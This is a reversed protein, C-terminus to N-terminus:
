SMSFQAMSLMSTVFMVIMLTIVLVVLMFKFQPHLMVQARLRIMLHQGVVIVSAKAMKLNAKAIKHTLM